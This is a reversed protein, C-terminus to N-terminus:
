RPDFRFTAELRNPFLAAMVGSRYSSQGPASMLCGCDTAVKEWDDASLYSAEIQGGFPINGIADLATLRWHDLRSTAIHDKIYIPGAVVRRIERMLPRRVKVPVHHLVNIITAADFAADPYPLRSGDYVATEISLGVCYRDVVDVATVKDVPLFTQIAEAMLGTGGGVDLLKAHHGQWVRALDQLIITQYTPARQRYLSAHRSLLDAVRDQTISTM